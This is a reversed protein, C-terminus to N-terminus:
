QRPRCRALVSLNVPQSHIVLHTALAPGHYEQMAAHGGNGERKGRLNWRQCAIMTYNSDLLHTMPVGGIECSAFHGICAHGLIRKGKKNLLSDLLRIQDADAIAALDRQPQRELM